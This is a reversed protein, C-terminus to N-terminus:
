IEMPFQNKDKFTPDLISKTKITFSLLLYAMFTAFM